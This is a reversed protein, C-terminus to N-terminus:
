IVLLHGNDKLWDRSSRYDPLVSEVAAWFLRSHDPHSIHAMEHVVLYDIVDPPAMVLKWSFNLTGSPGCSGWRKDANSIRVSKHAYGFVHSFHRCRETILRLAEKRYWSRLFRAAYPVVQQPIYFIGDRFQISVGASGNVRVEHQRGLYLLTEGDRFQRAQPLTRGAAEGIKRIIWDRKREIFEDISARATRLPARVVLRGDGTVILEITRRRTRVLESISIDKM